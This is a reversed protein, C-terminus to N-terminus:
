GLAALEADARAPWYSMAMADFAERAEALESRADKRRGSLRHVRGLGLHCRAALPRMGLQGALVWAEQYRQGATEAENREAAVEGSLLLAYAEWAREGRERALALARSAEDSAEDTRDALLYAEGLHVRALALWGGQSLADLGEVGDRLPSLGKGVEGARARAYGLLWRQFPITLAVEREEAIRITRETLPIARAFEGKLCWAYALCWCAQILLHPRDVQEARRLADLGQEIAEDFRGLEGLTWARYARAGEARVVAAALGHRGATDLATLVEGFRAEALHLDGGIMCATGLYYVALVRLSRDDISAGIDRAAEAYRRAEVAHGVGWLFNSLYVAVWGHLRADGLSEALREARRLHVGSEDIRGLPHLGNRVQVHLDIARAVNERTGPLHSLATLARESWAVAERHASRSLADAGARALYEVALDWVEGGFYHAGLAAVHPELDVAHIAELARAVAAHLLKRRPPLLQDYAVERIRDHTFDFRDGVAHVVRRRVLEELSEAAEGPDLGAARAVVDFEFERGVVAAATALLRARDGLRELRGAIVRRVREPVSLRGPTGAEAGEDLARMTEVVMFPNGTSLEWLQDGLRDLRGADSGTRTLARVLALTDDRSLASLALRSLGGGLELDDLVRRLWPAATLEEERATLVLLVASDRTRRALFGLLRVTLEDAWHLDEFLLVLPQRSALQGILRTVSEFLRVVDQSARPLGSAGVEPLLTALESRSAENLAGLAEDERVVQAGRLADVWPALPLIQENEYCRGLLVRAGRELADVALTAVLRSKGIGADGIVAVLRGRGASAEQLAQRLRELEVDRGVLPTDPAPADEVSVRPALRDSRAARVPRQRVLEQYLQRTGAEPEIGLERQLVAVCQQYQRLAAGRRGVKAYLRMLVRHVPEQLPDLGLLMRGTQIAAETNGANRHQALLKALAELALERLREREDLLWEEFGGTGEVSLGALLDGQYLQAATVLATPTAEAVSREFAAVDVEVTAPDLAIADGEVHVGDPLTRRLTFLAQRLSNRAQGESNDGWLLTALKDRPHARGAPLALYALLAQAKRTSLSLAPGSGIRAQFGGLLTLSLRTMAVDHTASSVM